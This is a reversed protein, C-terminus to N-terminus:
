SARRTLALFAAEDLVPVGLRRADAEKKGADEGAILFTTKKSVSSAVRGGLRMILDTAAERTLTPLAGTLVFTKGDLPRPGEAFSAETVTVGAAGLRQLVERN